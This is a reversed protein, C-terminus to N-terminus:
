APPIQRGPCSPWHCLLLYQIRQCLLTTSQFCLNHLDDPWIYLLLLDAHATFAESAAVNMEYKDTMVWDGASVAFGCQTTTNVEKGARAAVLNYQIVVSSIHSFSAKPKWTITIQVSAIADSVHTLSTVLLAKCDRFHCSIPMLLHHQLANHPRGNRTSVSLQVWPAALLCVM